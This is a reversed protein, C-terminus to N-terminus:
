GDIEGGSLGPVFYKVGLVREPEKEDTINKTLTVRYWSDVVDGKQKREKYVCSYKVLLGTSKAREILDNADDETAVRYTEVVSLLYDM